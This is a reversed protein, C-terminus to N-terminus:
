ALQFKKSENFKSNQRKIPVRFGFKQNLPKEAPLLRAVITSFLYAGSIM